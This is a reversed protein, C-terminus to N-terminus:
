VKVKLKPAPVAQSEWFEILKKRRPESLGSPAIARWGSVSFLKSERKQTWKFLREEAQKTQPVWFFFTEELRKNKATFSVGVMERDGCGPLNLFSTLQM